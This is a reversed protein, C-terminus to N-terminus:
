SGGTAAAAQLATDIARALLPSVEVERGAAANVASLESDARFRSLTEDIRALLPAVEGAAADLTDDDTALVHVSTGLASWRAEPLAM